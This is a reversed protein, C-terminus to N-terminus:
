DYVSKVHQMNIFVTNMLSRQLTKYTPIHYAHSCQTLIFDPAMAQPSGGCNILLVQFVM